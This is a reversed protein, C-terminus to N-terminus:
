ILRRMAEMKMETEQWESEEDSDALLGGGAHMVCRTGSIEMCRLSVFLSAKGGTHWPGLFGSYYRRDVNENELIFRLADNKPLGCVAPTPHLTEIVNGIGCVDSTDNGFRFSFDSRLHVLNGARITYPETVTMDTVFPSLCQSIYDAVMQQEAINKGSWRCDTTGEYPMTGALAMTHWSGGDEAILLEPTAMLWTGAVSSNVLAVMMRPYRRCAEAFLQQPCFAEHAVVEACRSLVLKSFRNDVVASHFLSFAKSYAERDSTETGSVHLAEPQIDVKRAEGRIVVLLTDASAVFPAMVFGRVDDLCSASPLTLPEANTDDIRYAEGEYPLRYLVFDSM